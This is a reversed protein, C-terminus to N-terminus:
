IMACAELNTGAPEILIALLRAVLKGFTANLVGAPFFTNITSLSFEPVWFKLMLSLPLHTDVESGPPATAVKIHYIKILM